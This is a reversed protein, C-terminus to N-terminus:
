EAVESRGRKFCRWSQDPHSLSLSVLHRGLGARPSRLRDHYTHCKEMEREKLRHEEDGQTKKDTADKDTNRTAMSFRGDPLLYIDKLPSTSPLRRRLIRPLNRVCSFVCYKKRGTRERDRYQSGSNSRGISVVLETREM